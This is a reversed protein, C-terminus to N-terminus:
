AETNPCSVRGMPNLLHKHHKEHQTSPHLGGDTIEPILMNKLIHRHQCVRRRLLFYFYCLSAWSPFYFGCEQQSTLSASQDEEKVVQCVALSWGWAQHGPHTPSLTQPYVGSYGSRPSNMSQISVRGMEGKPHRQGYSQTGMGPSLPPPKSHKNLSM